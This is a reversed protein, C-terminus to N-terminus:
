KDIITLIEKKLFLKVFWNKEYAKLTKMVRNYSNCIDNKTKIYIIDGRKINKFSEENM